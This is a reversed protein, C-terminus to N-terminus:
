EESVRNWDAMRAKHAKLNAKRTQADATHKGQRHWNLCGNCAIVPKDHSKAKAPTRRKMFGQRMIDCLREAEGKTM